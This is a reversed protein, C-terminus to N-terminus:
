AKGIHALAYAFAIVDRVSIYAASDECQLAAIMRCLRVHDGSKAAEIATARMGAMDAAALKAVLRAACEARTVDPTNEHEMSRM